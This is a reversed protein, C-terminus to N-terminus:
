QSHMMKTINRFFRQLLSSEETIIEADALMGNKLVIKKAMEKNEFKEFSVKAIFVSDKYAADSIYTLKGSIAGYQEFPYSKLKVLTREGIRIKGMNYQPIQLEGFFNTNGPNVIFIEQGPSVNQNQQIIGAYSLKGAIPTTLIHQQIWAESESICQNLSQVFKAQEEAITHKLDLLEKQKGTYSSSNNLFSTETQQLPYKSALYKNEQDLFENRSIVKKEFLQKYAQYQKEANIYEARQIKQQQTIQSKLRGIDNLDKELFAIRNLYYGNKQTSQYALYQQYFNQYSSQLEGLNLNTPMTIKTQKNNLVTQKLNNLVSNITLVDKPDATSELYALVQNENVMEGDTVMLKTLKSNQKALISKPSNLSNVKMGTKVVDPYEILASLFIIGLLVGLVTTIGWKLIWTPVASIIEQVEDSYGDGYDEGFEPFSIEEIQPTNDNKLTTTPPNVVAGNSVNNM